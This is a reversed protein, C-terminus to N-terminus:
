IGNNEMSYSSYLVPNAQEKKQALFDIIIKGNMSKKISSKM